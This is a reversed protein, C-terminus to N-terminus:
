ETKLQPKAISFIPATGIAKPVMQVERIRFPLSPGGGAMGGGGQPGAEDGVYTADEFRSKARAAGWEAPPKKLAMRDFRALDSRAKSAEKVEDDLFDFGSM